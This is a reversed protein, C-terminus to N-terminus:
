LASHRRLGSQALALRYGDLAASPLNRGHGGSRCYVLRIRSVQNLRNVIEAGCDVRHAFLDLAFTPQWRLKDLCQAFEAEERKPKCPIQTARFEAQSVEHADDFRKGSVVARDGPANGVGCGVAAKRAKQGFRDGAPHEYIVSRRNGSVHTGVPPSLDCFSAIAHGPAPGIAAADQMAIPYEATANHAITIFGSMPWAAFELSSNHKEWGALRLHDVGPIDAPQAAGAAVVVLDCVEEHRLGVHRVVM